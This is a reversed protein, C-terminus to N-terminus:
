RAELVLPVSAIWPLIDNSTQPLIGCDKTTPPDSYCANNQKLYGTIMTFHRAKDAAVKVWDDYFALPLEEGQFRAILDWSLDIANLEIQAITADPRPPM